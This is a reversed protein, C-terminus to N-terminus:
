AEVEAETLWNTPHTLSIADEDGSLLAAFHAERDWGRREAAALDWGLDNYREFPDDCTPCGEVYSRGEHRPNGAAHEIYLERTTM